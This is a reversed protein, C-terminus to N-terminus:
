SSYLTTKPFSPQNNYNEAAGVVQGPLESFSEHFPLASTHPPRSPDSSYCQPANQMLPLRNSYSSPDPNCYRGDSINTTTQTLLLSCFPFGSPPFFSLMSHPHLFTLFGVSNSIMKAHFHTQEFLMPLSPTSQESNPPKLTRKPSSPFGTTPRQDLM